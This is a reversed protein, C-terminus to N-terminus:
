KGQGGGANRKLARQPPKAKPDGARLLELYKRYFGAAAEDQGNRWLADALNLYAPTRKPDRRIVHALMALVSEHVKDRRSEAGVAASADVPAMHYFAYDNLMATYEPSKNEPDIEDYPFTEFFADLRFVSLGGDQTFLAERPMSQKREEFVAKARGYMGLGEEFYPRWDLGFPVTPTDWKIREDQTKKRNRLTSVTNCAREEILKRVGNWVPAPIPSSVQLQDPARLGQVVGKFHREGQVYPNSHMFPDTEERYNFAWATKEDDLVILGGLWGCLIPKWESALERRTEAESWSLAVDTSRNYSGFRRPFALYLWDAKGNGDLDLRIMKREGPYLYDRASVLFDIPPSTWVVQGNQRLALKRAAWNGASVESIQVDTGSHLILRGQPREVRSPIDLPTEARPACAAVLTLAVLLWKSTTLTPPLTPRRTM